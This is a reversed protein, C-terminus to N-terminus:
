GGMRIWLGWWWVPEDGGKGVEEFGVWGVGEFGDHAVAGDVGFCVGEDGQRQGRGGGAFGGDRGMDLEGPQGADAAAIAGALRIGRPGLSCHLVKLHM